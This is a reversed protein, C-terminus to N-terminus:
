LPGNHTNSRKFNCTMGACVPIWRTRVPAQSGAEVCSHRWAPIVDLAFSASRPLVHRYTGYDCRSRCVSAQSALGM